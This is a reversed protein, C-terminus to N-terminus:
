VNGVWAASDISLIIYQVEMFFYVNQIRKGIDPLSSSVLNFLHRGMNWIIHYEPEKYAKHKLMLKMTRYLSSNLAFWRVLEPSRGQLLEVSEDSTVPPCTFSIRTLDADTPKKTPDCGCTCPTNLSYQWFEKIGWTATKSAEEVTISECLERYSSKRQLNHELAKKIQRLHLFDYYKERWRLRNESYMDSHEKIKDRLQRILEEASTPITALSRMYTLVEDREARKNMQRLLEKWQKLDPGQMPSWGLSTSPCLDVM